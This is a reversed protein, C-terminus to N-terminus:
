NSRIGSPHDGHGIDDPKNLYFDNLLQRGLALRPICLLAIDGGNRYAEGHRRPKWARRAVRGDSDAGTRGRGIEVPLLKRQSRYGVEAAIQTRICTMSRASADNRAGGRVALLAFEEWFM